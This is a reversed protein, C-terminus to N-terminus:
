RKGKRKGLHQAVDNDKFQEVVAVLETVFRAADAGDIVRHDYSLVLPLIMRKELKGNRVVPKWDARGLGLVAVEPSNIIPTFHGGGIGGQNSITFTGGQMEELSLKRQRAREALKDLEISVELLSKKDVDRMVPVILGQETDVAIGLHCYDKYVIEEASDDLSSNFKPYKKVVETVAKLVFSTLTLHAGKKEYSASHKKRLKMLDTIDAEDFQTIHPISTWATAMHHSITRRLNTM